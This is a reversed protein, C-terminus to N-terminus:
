QKFNQKLLADFSEASNVYTAQILPPCEPSEGLNGCVTATKQSEVYMDLAKEVGDAKPRVRIKILPSTLIHTAGDMCIDVGEVKEVSSSICFPGPKTPPSEKEGRADISVGFVLLILIMTSVSLKRIISGSLIYNIGM